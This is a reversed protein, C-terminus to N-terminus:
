KVRLTSANQETYVDCVGPIDLGCRGEPQLCVYNPQIDACTKSTGAVKGTAKDCRASCFAPAGLPADYKGNGDTDIFVPNSVALPFVPYFDPVRAPPPFFQAALALNSFAVSAVRPLQLEGFPVDLYVPRMEHGEQTGLVKVIVWSDRAPVDITWTKDLDVLASAAVQLDEAQVVRGNVYLEVRDIGFWSATQVKVRVDVKGKAAVTAGPGQGGVTVEVFPGYTPLAKGARLNRAVEAPEIDGPQDHSVQVYTRPLGPELSQSHSDSGGVMTHVFGHELFRMEDDFTGTRDTCPQDLWAKDKVVEEFAKGLNSGDYKCREAYDASLQKAAAAPDSAMKYDLWADAEAPTRRLIDASIVRALAVRYRHQCSLFDEGAPCKVLDTLGRDALEPCAQALKARAAPEDFDAEPKRRLDKGDASKWGARDIRALCRQFTQVERVTATHVMDYRKANFVEFADFDCAVTRLVPNGEELQSLQRTLNFPNVGAQALWGLFGDRPHAIITTPQATGGSFGSRSLIDAVIDNSPKCYWDVSGHHPVTNHDYKLPFGIYHGIELTSVESGIVAKLWRDLRLARLWPLYDTLVDHDTSAVYDLGEAAITQVRRSLPMGSDFSPEAHLHFDTGAWGPTEVERPVLAQWSRVDGPKVVVKGGDLDAIGYEIGHSVVVRYTGAEVPLDFRGDPATQLVQVGTGLRGQGFYPRRGGDRWLPQGDAGLKQVTVKAPLAQGGQDVAQIRLRAPTPLAPSAIVTQGAKVEIPLPAGVVIKHEDVPVLVYRGPALTAHFDGDEQLDLGPDADIADLVGPGNDLKRNAEILTDVDAWAKGPEPDRLVFVTANRAAGGSEQWRVVGEVRGTATGRVKHVEDLVSGIDGDGVALYREYEYARVQACTPDPKGDVLGCNFTADIFATAASTFVPVLVKPEPDGTQAKKTFYGYSVDGGAAAVFDFALPKAFTDRGLFLADWVPKEEDFGHGPVFIDTQNGFFVFDGGGVGQAMSPLFSDGAKLGLLAGFISTDEGALTMGGIKGCACTQCGREDLLWGGDCTTAGCDVPKCACTGAKGCILGGCESDSKCALDAYEPDPDPLLALTTKMRVVREGPVLTYDTRFGIETKLDPFAARLLGGVTPDRKLKRLIGLGEFLFRGKGEVRVTARQGDTGDHLVTVKNALPAPVLLNAFPFVEAFKDRGNGSPFRADTRRLDADVLSGGFVGPGWSKEPGLIAVRIQDNELVFDGVDAYAVPGGVLEYRSSAQFARLQSVPEQCSALLALGLVVLRWPCALHRTM